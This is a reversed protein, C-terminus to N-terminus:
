EKVYPESYLFIEDLKKIPIAAPITRFDVNCISAAPHTEELSVDPEASDTTELESVTHNQEDDWIEEDDTLPEEKIVLEPILSINGFILVIKM